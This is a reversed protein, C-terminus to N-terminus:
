WLLSIGLTQVRHADESGSNKAHTPRCWEFYKFQLHSPGRGEQWKNKRTGYVQRDLLVHTPAQKSKLTDSYSASHLQFDAGVWLSQVPRDESDPLHYILCPSQCTNRRLLPNLSASVEYCGKQVHVRKGVCMNFHIDGRVLPESDSRSTGHKDSVGNQSKSFM